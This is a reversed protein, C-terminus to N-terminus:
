KDDKNDFENFPDDNENFDSFPEDNGKYSNNQQSGGGYQNDNSNNYQNANYYGRNRLYEAYNVPNKKRVAFAFPAFLDLGPILMGVISIVSVLIYQQPWFKRFFSIYASVAMVLVVFELVYNVYQLVSFLVSVWKINFPNNFDKGVGPKLTTSDIVVTGGQSLYGLLPVVDMLILAWSIVTFTTFIIGMWIALKSYSGVFFRAEGILKCLIYFWVGPIFALWAYDIGQRKALIYLGASRLAYFLVIIACLVGVISWVGAIPFESGGTIDKIIVM